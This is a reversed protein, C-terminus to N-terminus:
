FRTAAVKGLKEAIERGRANIGVVGAKVSEFAGELVFATRSRFQAGNSAYLWRQGEPKVLIYGAKQMRHALKRPSKLLGTMEEQGDFQLSAMEAGFVVPPRGMAEIATSVCDDPPAWSEAVADWGATKPVEGKPNFDTIDRARLWAGVHGAGGSDCWDYFTKFYDPMGLDNQWMTPLSSHAIFMRGDGPPIYMAMWDNTTFFVRIVNVVYRTKEFKEKRPLVMPPAALMPKCINYFASAHFEDKSPRVENITLMLTQTWPNSNEVFLADPDIDKANWTGVVNKLPYLIADKGIRQNGSLVVGANCKEEPKQVMHAAFNFIFNHEAPDPYLRKVHDLWPGACEADGALEPPAKYMNYIRRGPAPYFSDNDVFWDRIMQPHGPWWCSGEVFQDNEVRMIDLTPRVLRERRRPRGRRAPAGEQPEPAEEVVVRWLEQPISADVSKEEHLTGDALDWFKGERKDFVYDSPRAMRRQDAMAALLAAERAATREDIADTM